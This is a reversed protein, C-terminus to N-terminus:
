SRYVITIKSSNPQSGPEVAITGCAGKFARAGGTVEGSGTGNTVNITAHGYIVGQQRAVAVDCVALHTQPNVLCSTVDYGTTAGNQADRDTAVDTGGVIVDKVQTTTLRLTHSTPAASAASLAGTGVAVAAVGIGVATLGRSLHTGTSGIERNTM